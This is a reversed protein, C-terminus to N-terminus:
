VGINQNELLDIQFYNDWSPTNKRTENVVSFLIQIIKTEWSYAYVPLCYM